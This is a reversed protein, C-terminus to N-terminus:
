PLKFKGVTDGQVRIEDLRFYAEWAENGFAYARNPLLDPGNYISTPYSAIKFVIASKYCLPNSVRVSDLANIRLKMNSDFKALVGSKLEKLINSYNSPFVPLTSLLLFVSAIMSTINIIQKTTTFLKLGVFYKVAALWLLIIAVNIIVSTSSFIRFPIDYSKRMGLYYPLTMLSAVLILVLVVILVRRVAILNHLFTLRTVVPYIALAAFIWIPNKLMSVVISANHQICLLLPKLEILKDNISRNDSLRFQIGPSTLFLLLCCLGWLTLLRYELRCQSFRYSYFWLATILIANPLFFIESLGISAFLLAMALIFLIAKILASNNSSMRIAVGVFSIFFIWPWYYVFSGVMEFLQIVISPSFQLQLFTFVAVLTLTDMKHKYDHLELIVVSSSVMFLFIVMLPMCKYGTFSDFFLPNCAHMINAFYRGDHHILVNAIGNFFGFDRPQQCLSLEESNPFTHYAGICIILLSVLAYVFLLATNAYKLFSSRSMYM